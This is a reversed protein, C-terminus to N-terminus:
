GKSYGRALTGNLCHFRLQLEIPSQTKRNIKEKISPAEGPKRKYLYM